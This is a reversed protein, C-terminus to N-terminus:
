KYNRAAPRNDWWSNAKDWWSPGAVPADAVIQPASVGTTDNKVLESHFGAKITGDPNFYQGYLMDQPSTQGATQQGYVSQIWSTSLTNGFANIAEAFPMGNAKLTLLQSKDAAPGDKDTTQDTKAQAESALYPLMKRLATEKTDLFTVGAKQFAVPHTTMLDTVATKSDEITKAQDTLAKIRDDVLSKEDATLTVLNKTHLDLLTTLADNQTKNDTNIASITADAYTKALDINGQLVQATAQLAGITALGQKQLSASRGLILQERIPRDQEYILGMNLAEQASVIQTKIATLSAITEDVGFKTNVAKLADQAATSGLNASIGKAAADSAAQENKIKEDIAAQRTAQLTDIAKGTADLTTGAVKTTMDSLSPALTTKSEALTAADPLNGARTLDSTSIPGSSISPPIPSSYNAPNTQQGPLPNAGPAAVTVPVPPTVATDLIGGLSKATAAFTSPDGYVTQISGDPMKIKANQTAM